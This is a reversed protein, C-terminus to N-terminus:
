QNEFDRATADYRDAAGPVGAVKAQGPKEVSWGATGFPRDPM